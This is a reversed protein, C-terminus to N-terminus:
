VKHNIDEIFQGCQNYDNVVSKWGGGLVDILNEADQEDHDRRGDVGDDVPQDTLLQAGADGLPKGGSGSM